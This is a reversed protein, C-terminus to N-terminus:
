LRQRVRRGPLAPFLWWRWHASASWPRLAGPASAGPQIRLSGSPPQLAGLRGLRHAPHRRQQSWGAEAPKLLSGPRERGPSRPSPREASRRQTDHSVHRGRPIAAGGARRALCRRAGLLTHWADGPPCEPAVPPRWGRRTPTLHHRIWQGLPGAM